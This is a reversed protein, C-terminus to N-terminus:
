FSRHTRWIGACRLAMTHVPGVLSRAVSNRAPNLNRGRKSVGAYTSHAFPRLVLTEACSAIVGSLASYADTLLPQSVNPVVNYVHWHHLNWTPWAPPVLLGRDVCM